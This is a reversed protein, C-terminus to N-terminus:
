NLMHLYYTKKLCIEFLHNLILSATDTDKNHTTRKETTYSSIQLLHILLTDSVSKM